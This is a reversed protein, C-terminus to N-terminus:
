SCHCMAPVAGCDGCRYRLQYAAWVILIFVAVYAAVFAYPHLLVAQPPASM